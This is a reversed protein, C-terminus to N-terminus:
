TAGTDVVWEARALLEDFTVVEPETLSRRFLEFSRVKPVHPGGGEGLLQDSNGIVLFSRPRTLFTMEGLVESGDAATERIVEGIDEIARRVTAQSQAIGSALDDSPPWTGSRYEGALLDTRHTKFEAFTMWRVVGSTRMLADARKGEHAISAGGVVKELKNRDWSTYLQGGLGTGLIWPNEEFFAQWVDEGRKRATKAVEADFFDDDDMLRKFRNVEARRRELAVVDRAAADDSIIRRFLDPDRQYLQSVSDPSSFLERVLADDVRVTDEGVVPIHDLNKVLEILRAADPGELSLVNEARAGSKLYTIRQVWVNIVRGPEGAILLKIQVRGKESRRVLWETGDGFPEVETESEPDFVKEVFRAPVGPAGRLDFSRSAYTRIPARRGAFYGDKDARDEGPGERDDTLM